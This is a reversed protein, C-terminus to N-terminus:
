ARAYMHCAYVCRYIHQCVAQTCTRTDFQAAIVLGFWTTWSCSRYSSEYCRPGWEPIINSNHITSTAAQILFHVHSSYRPFPRTFVSTHLGTSNAVVSMLMRTIWLWSTMRIHQCVTARNGLECQQAPVPCNSSVLRQFAKRRLWWAEFRAHRRSLSYVGGSDAPFKFFM